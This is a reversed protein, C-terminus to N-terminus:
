MPAGSFADGTGYLIGFKGAEEEPFLMVQHGADRLAMLTAYAGEYKDTYAESM